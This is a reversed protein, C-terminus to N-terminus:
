RGPGSLVFGAWLREPAAPTSLPEALPALRRAAQSLDPGRLRALAPLQEPSRWVALQARRLAEIPPLREQFVYAYFLQMLVSTTQDDLRWLSAVVNEAGALHFARQLGVTGDGVAVGAGTECASLVVMELNRLPTDAIMRGTLLGGDDLPLGLPNRATGMNAGALVLGNLVLPHLRAMAARRAQHPDDNRALTEANLFFGHTALHAWGTRRLNDLVQYSTARSGTLKLVSNQPLLTEIADIEQATHSLAPWRRPPPDSLSPRGGDPLQRREYDVAGVLLYSRPPRQGLPPKEHFRRDTIFAGYPLLGIAYEQLLVSAPQRGPLACWPLQCLPGDPVFYIYRTDQQFCKEVPEFLRERLLQRSADDSASQEIAQRWSRVAEDIPAAEGLDLWQITQYPPDAARQCVFALYRTSAPPWEVRVYEVIVSQPPINLITEEWRAIQELEDIPSSPPAYTRGAAYLFLYVQGFSNTGSHALERQGYYALDYPRDGLRQTESNGLSASEAWERADTQSFAAEPDEMVMRTIFNVRYDLRHRALTKGYASSAPVAAQWAQHLYDSEVQRLNSSFPDVIGLSGWRVRRLGVILQERYYDEWFEQSLLENTRKALEMKATMLHQHIPSGPAGALQPYSQEIDQLLQRGRDFRNTQIEMMAELIRVMADTMQVRGKLAEAIPEAGEILKRMRERVWHLLKQDPLKGMLFSAQMLLITLESEEVLSKASDRKGLSAFLLEGEGQEEGQLSRRLVELMALTRLDSEAVSLLKRKSFYKFGQNVCEMARKQDGLFCYCLARDICLAGVDVHGELSVEKELESLLQLYVVADSYEGALIATRAASILLSALVMRQSVMSPRMANRYITVGTRWHRTSESFQGVSSFFEAVFVVSADYLYWRSENGKLRSTEEIASMMKDIAQQPTLMVGNVKATIALVQAAFHTELLDYAKNAVLRTRSCLLVCDTFFRLAARNQNYVSLVRGARLLCASADARLLVCDCTKLRQNILQRVRSLREIASASEGLRFSWEASFVIAADLMLHGDPYLESPFASAVREFAEVLTARQLEPPTARDDLVIMRSLIRVANEARLYIEEPKRFSPHFVLPCIYFYRGVKRNLRNWEGCWATLHAYTRMLELRIFEVDAMDEVKTSYKKSQNVLTAQACALLESQFPSDADLILMFYIGEALRYVRNFTYAFRVCVETFTVDGHPQVYSIEGISGAPDIFFINIPQQAGIIRIQFRSFLSLIWPQDDPINVWGAKSLVECQVRIHQNGACLTASGLFILVIFCVYSCNSRFSNRGECLSAITPLYRRLLSYTLANCSAPTRSNM